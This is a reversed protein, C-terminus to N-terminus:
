STRRDTLRRTPQSLRPIAQLQRTAPQLPLVASIGTIEQKDGNMMGDVRM